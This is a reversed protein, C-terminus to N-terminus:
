ILSRPFSPKSTFRPDKDMVACLKASLNYRLPLSTAGWQRAVGNIPACFIRVNVMTNEVYSAHLIGYKDNQKIHHKNATM